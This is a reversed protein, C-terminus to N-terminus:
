SGTLYDKRYGASLDFWCIGSGCGRGAKANERFLIEGGAIEGNDDLLRLISMASVSKGSGSEGVICLTKGSEVAFSVDNVARLTGKRTKFNVRLNKVELLAMKKAEKKMEDLVQIGRVDKKYVYDTYAKKNTKLISRTAYPM